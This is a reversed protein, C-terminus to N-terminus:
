RLDLFAILLYKLVWLTTLFFLKVTECYLYSLVSLPGEVTFIRWAFHSQFRSM